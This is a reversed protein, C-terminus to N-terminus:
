EEDSGEVAEELFGIYGCWVKTDSEIKKCAGLLAEDDVDELSERVAMILGVTACDKKAADAVADGGASSLGARLATVIIDGSEIIDVKELLADLMGSWKDFVVGASKALPTPQKLGPLDTAAVVDAAIAELIAGFHDPPTSNVHGQFRVKLNFDPLVDKGVKSSDQEKM